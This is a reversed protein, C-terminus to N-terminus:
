EMGDAESGGFKSGLCCKCVRENKVIEDPSGSGIVKGHDIVYIHSAVEFTKEVNHDTILISIGFAALKRIETQLDQVVIPDVGSFPKDLLILSPNTIM